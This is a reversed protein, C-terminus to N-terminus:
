GDSVENTQKLLERIPGKEWALTLRSPRGPTYLKQRAAWEKFFEVAAQGKIVVVAGDLDERTRGLEVFSVADSDYNALMVLRGLQGTMGYNRPRIKSNARM